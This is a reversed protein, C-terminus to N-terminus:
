SACRDRKSVMVNFFSGQQSSAKGPFFSLFFVPGLTLWVLLPQAFRDEQRSSLAQVLKRWSVVEMIQNKPPGPYPPPTSTKVFCTQCNKTRTKFQAGSLIRTKGFPCPFNPRVTKKHSM